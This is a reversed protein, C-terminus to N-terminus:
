WIYSDHGLLAARPPQAAAVPSVWKKTSHEALPVQSRVMPTQLHKSPYVPEEQWRLSHTNNANRRAESHRVPVGGKTYCACVIM